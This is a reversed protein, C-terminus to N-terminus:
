GGRTSKALANQVQNQAVRSLDNSEGAAAYYFQVRALDGPSDADAEKAIYASFQTYSDQWLNTKLQGFSLSTPAFLYDSVQFLFVRFKLLIPQQKKM